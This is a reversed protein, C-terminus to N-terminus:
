YQIFYTDLPGLNLKLSYFEIKIHRNKLEMLDSPEAVWRDKDNYDKYNEDEDDNLNAQAQTEFTYSVQYM